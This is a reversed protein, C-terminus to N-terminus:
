WCILIHTFLHIHFPFNPYVSTTLRVLFIFLVFYLSWVKRHFWHLFIWYFMQIVFFPRFELLSYICACHTNTSRCLSCITRLGWKCKNSIHKLHKNLYQRNESTVDSADFSSCRKVYWIQKLHSKLAIIFHLIKLLYHSWNQDTGRM